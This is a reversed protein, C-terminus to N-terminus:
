APDDWRATLRAGYTISRQYSDLDHDRDWLLRYVANVASKMMVKIEDDTIHSYDSIGHCVPCVKGAHVNEIPGNRFALAVIAKAETALETDLRKMADEM